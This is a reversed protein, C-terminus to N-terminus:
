VENEFNVTVQGFHKRVLRKVEDKSTVQIFVRGDTADPAFVVYDRRAFQSSRNYRDRSHYPKSVHVTIETIPEMSVLTGGGRVGPLDPM